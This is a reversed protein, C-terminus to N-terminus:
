SLTTRFIVHGWWFVQIQKLPNNVKYWPKGHYIVTFGGNIGCNPLMTNSSKELCGVLLALFFFPTQLLFMRLMLVGSSGGFAKTMLIKVGFCWFLVGFGFPGVFVRGLGLQLSVVLLKDVQCNEQHGKNPITFRSRKSLNSLHGVWRNRFSFTMAQVVQFGEVAVSTAVTDHKPLDPPASKFTTTQQNNTPQQPPPKM